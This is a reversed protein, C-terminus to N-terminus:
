SSVVESAAKRLRNMVAAAASSSGVDGCGDNECRDSIGEVYIREVGLLDLERLGAFLGRAIDQTAQGLAISFIRLKLGEVDYVTAVASGSFGQRGNDAPSM